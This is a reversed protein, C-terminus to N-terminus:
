EANPQIIEILEVDFILTQEPGISGGSGSPGYAIDSPVYLQWKSGVPMLQLAEVWGRIVGNVPFTAPQGRDVSSDFVTGDPLTGHYHVKVTDTASPKEGAGETLVKYGLGSETFTVGDEARKEAFFTEAEAKAKSAREEFKKQEAAQVFAQLESMTSRVEEDSLQSDVDGAADKMGQIVAAYDLELSDVKMRQGTNFGVVYSFRADLSVLDEKTVTEAEPSTQEAQTCGALSLSGLVFASVILNKM